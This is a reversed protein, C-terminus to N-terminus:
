KPTVVVDPGREANRRKDGEYQDEVQHNCLGRLRAAAALGVALAAYVTLLARSSLYAEFGPKFRNPVVHYDTMYAAAAIAAGGAAAAATSREARRGFLAEFFAAWFIASGYHLAGGIVGDMTSTGRHSQPDDNWAMHSVAQM